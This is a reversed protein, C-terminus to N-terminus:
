KITLSCEFLEDLFSVLDWYKPISGIKTEKYTEQVAQM